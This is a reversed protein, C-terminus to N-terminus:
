VDDAQVIGSLKGVLDWEVERLHREDILVAGKGFQLAGGKKVDGASIASLPRTTPVDVRGPAWAPDSPNRQFTAEPSTCVKEGPLRVCALATFM